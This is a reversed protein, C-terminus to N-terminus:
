EESTEIVKAGAGIAAVLEDQSAVECTYQKKTVASIAQAQNSAKVLQITDSEAHRVIYIRKKAAM